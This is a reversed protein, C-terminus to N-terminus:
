TSKAECRPDRWWVDGCHPPSAGLEAWLREPLLTRPPAGAGVRAKDATRNLRVGGQGAAATEEALRRVAHHLRSPHAGAFLAAYRRLLGAVFRALHPLHMLQCLRLQGGRAIREARPADATATRLHAALDALDHRVRLVHEGSRLLGDFWLPYLSAQTIVVSGLSLKSLLSAQWGYGDLEIVASFNALQAFPLGTLQRQAASQRAAHALAVSCDGHAPNCASFSADLMPRLEADRGLRVALARPHPPADHPCACRRRDCESRSLFDGDLLLAAAHSAGDYCHNACTRLACGAATAAATASSSAASSATAPRVGLCETYTRFAGRWVGRRLKRQWPVSAWRTHVRTAGDRTAGDRSALITHGLGKLSIPVPLSAACAGSSSALKPVNGPLRLDARDTLDLIFLADPPKTGDSALGALAATLIYKFVRYHSLTGAALRRMAVIDCAAAAVRGKYVSVLVMGGSCGAPVAAAPEDRSSTPQSGRWATFVDDWSRPPAPPLRSLLSDLHSESYPDVPTAECGPLTSWAQRERRAFEAMKSEMSQGGAVPQETREVSSETVSSSNARVYADFGATSLRTREFGDTSLRCEAPQARHQYCACRLQQCRNECEEHSLAKFREQQQSGGACWHGPQPMFRSVM